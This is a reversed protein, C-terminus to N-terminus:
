DHTESEHDVCDAPGDDWSLPARSLRVAEGSENPIKEMHWGEPWIHNSNPNVVRVEDFGVGSEFKAKGFRADGIFTAGGFEAYEVFTARGFTADGTFTVSRFIAEATFTTSGFWAAKTFTA